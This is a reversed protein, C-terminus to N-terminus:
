MCFVGYWHGDSKSVVTVVFNGVRMKTQLALPKEAYLWGEGGQMANFLVLSGASPDQGAVIKGMPSARQLEASVEVAGTADAKLEGRQLGKVVENRLKQYDTAGAPATKTNKGCGSIGLQGCFVLTWCFLFATKRM